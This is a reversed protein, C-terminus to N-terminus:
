KCALVGTTPLRRGTKVTAAVPDDRISHLRCARIEGLDLTSPLVSLRQRQWIVLNAQSSHESGTVVIQLDRM